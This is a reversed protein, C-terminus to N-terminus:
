CLFSSRRCGMMWEREALTSSNKAFAIDIPQTDLPKEPQTDLTGEVTNEDIFDIM